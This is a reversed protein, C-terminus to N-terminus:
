RGHAPDAARSDRAEREWAARFAARAEQPTLRSAGKIREWNAFLSREAQEYEGGYQAYGVYGVCYAPAYDEYECGARFYRERRYTARWYDDQRQPDAVICPTPLDDDEDAVLHPM